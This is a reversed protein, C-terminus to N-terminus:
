KLIEKFNAELIKKEYKKSYKKFIKTSLKKFLLKIGTKEAIEFVDNLSNKTKYEASVFADYKGKLFHTCRVQYMWHQIVYLKSAGIADYFCKDWNVIQQISPSNTSTWTDQNSHRRVYFVNHDDLLVANGLNAIKVMFPWDNFKSYKEYELPTTKFDKARYIASAYAIREIFYMHTAFEKQKKFLYHKESIESCFKPIDNGWFETYRTTILSINKYKNLVRLALELYNPHLIDDDHFLMIYKKSTIEQVKNFNGLFGFTKLYKVGRSEFQKVVEETNDTSENDLITIKKIGATQNLISEISQKLYEARNHTTIYIEIDNITFM